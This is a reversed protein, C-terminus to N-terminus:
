AADSVQSDPAVSQELISRLCGSFVHPGIHGLTLTPDVWLQYGLEAAKAFFGMDEGQAPEDDDIHDERYAFVHAVSGEVNHFRKRPSIEAVAEVVERQMACFGMGLGKFPLCGWENAEVAQGKVLNVMFLPPEQKARYAGAVMDMVTSLALVRVLAEPIWDMDSDIWFIHTHDSKLFRHAMKTRAHHVVSGGYDLEISHRVGRATLTAQTQVLAAVTRPHLDRHTPMALMVSVGDLSLSRPPPAFPDSM